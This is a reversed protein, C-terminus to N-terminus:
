GSSYLVTIRNGKGIVWDRTEYDPKYKVETFKNVYKCKKCKIEQLRVQGGAELKYLLHNCKKCRIEKYTM